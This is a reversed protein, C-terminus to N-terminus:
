QAKKGFSAPLASSAPPAVLQECSSVQQLGPFTPLSNGFANQADVGRASLPPVWPASAHAPWAVAFPETQVASAPDVHSHPSLFLQLAFSTQQMNVCGPRAGSWFTLMPLFRSVLIGCAQLACCANLYPPVRQAALQAASSIGSQLL